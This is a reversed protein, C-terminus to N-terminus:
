VSQVSINKLTIYMCMYAHMWCISIPERLVMSFHYWSRMIHKGPIYQMLPLLIIRSESSELFMKQLHHRPWAVADSGVWQSLSIYFQCFTKSDFDTQEEPSHYSLFGDGTRGSLDSKPLVRLCEETCNQGYEGSPCCITVMHCCPAILAWYVSPWAFWVCSYTPWVKFKDANWHKHVTDPM